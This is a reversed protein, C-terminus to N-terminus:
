PRDRARPQVNTRKGSLYPRRRHRVSWCSGICAHRRGGGCRDGAAVRRCGGGRSKLATLGEKVRRRVLTPHCDLVKAMEETTMGRQLLTRFQEALDLACAAPTVPELWAARLTQRPGHWPRGDDPTQWLHDRCAVYGCMRFGNVTYRSPCEARSPPVGLQLQLLGDATRVFVPATREAEGWSEIDARLDLWERLAPDVNRTM